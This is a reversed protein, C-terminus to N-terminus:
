HGVKLATKNVALRTMVLFNTNDESTALNMGYISFISKKTAKVVDNELTRTKPHRGLVSAHRKQREARNQSWKLIESFKELALEFLLSSM